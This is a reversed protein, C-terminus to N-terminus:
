KKFKEIWQSFEINLIGEYLDDDDIATIDSIPFYGANPYDDAIRNIFSFNGNGIGILVWYINKDQSAVIAAEAQRADDNEGDTVFIGLTPYEDAPAAVEDTKKGFLSSFFGKKKTAAVEVSSNVIDKMVPAYSTGGMDYKKVIERNVYNAINKETAAALPLSDNHFAWADISKDVDFNMGVALIREVVDQVTGNDYLRSMSGSFDIALKVQCPINRINRKDLVIGVKEVRKSLDIGM